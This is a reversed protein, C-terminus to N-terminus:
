TADEGKTKDKKNMMRMMMIHMLPCLLLMMYGAITSYGLASFLFSLGVPVLCCILMMLMHKMGSGGHGHCSAKKEEEM